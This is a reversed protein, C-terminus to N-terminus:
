SKSGPVVFNQQEIGNGSLCVYLDFDLKLKAFSNKIKEVDVEKHFPISWSLCGKFNKFQSSKKIMKDIHQGNGCFIERILNDINQTETLESTILCDSLNKARSEIDKNAEMRKEDTFIKIMDGDYIDEKRHIFENVEASVKPIDKDTLVDTKLQIVFRKGRLFQNGPIFSMGDIYDYFRLKTIDHNEKFKVEFHCTEGDKKMVLDCSGQSRDFNEIQFGEEVLYKYALLEVFLSNLKRILAWGKEGGLEELVKNFLDNPIDDYCSIGFKKEFFIFKILPLLFYNTLSSEKESLIKPVLIRFLSKGNFSLSSNEIDFDKVKSLWDKPLTCEQIKRM